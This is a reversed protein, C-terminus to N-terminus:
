TKKLHAPSYCKTQYESDCMIACINCNTCCSTYNINGKVKQAFDPECIFPRSLSVFDIEKKVIATEIENGTRFGGVSIIPIHTHKKALEAYPLNYTPSFPIRKRNILPFVLSKLLTKALINNTKYIKNHKLVTNIPVDGRFINLAHDMTGYSVEIADVPQSDLFKILNIFQRESFSNRYNDSASLKLIVPFDPGCRERIRGIIKSLFHIGVQLNQDVGFEDQRNNISSLIFQHILYGHAAHLQIGDFNAQKALHATHAFKEIIKFVEQTTLSIPKERFYASPKGSVGVVPKGTEISRTQRGTHAIQLFLKGNNKHVANTVKRFHSVAEESFLSAQGPQIAKGEDSIAIFGTILIGINHKSLNDYYDIYGQTPFGNEDAMGEFTASRILRNELECKGIYAKEFINM